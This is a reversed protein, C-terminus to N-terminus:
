NHGNYNIRLSLWDLDVVSIHIVIYQCVAGGRRVAVVVVVM